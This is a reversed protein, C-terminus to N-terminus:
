ADGRLASVGASFVARLTDSWQDERLGQAEMLDLVFDYDAEPAAFQVKPGIYPRGGSGRRPPRLEAARPISLANLAATM